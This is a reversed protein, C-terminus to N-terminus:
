LVMSYLHLDYFLYITLNKLRIEIYLLTLTHTRIYLHTEKMTPKTEVNSLNRFEKSINLIQNHQKPHGSDTKVVIYKHMHM